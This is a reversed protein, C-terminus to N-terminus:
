AACSHQATKGCSAGVGSLSCYHVLGWPLSSIMAVFGQSQCRKLLAAAAQRNLATGCSMRKM